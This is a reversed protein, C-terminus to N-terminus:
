ESLDSTSQGPSYRLTSLFTSLSDAVAQPQELMVMHGAAPILDIKARPLQDALYQSYRVPTLTDEQGCIVQAPFRIKHVSEMVDFANCALFDGHLVAPRIASMRQASLEILRSDSKPSFAREMIASIAAPFTTPSATNELIEPAVRLRAGTGILGLALVHEPYRLALTLAIAGGMSHGVFVARFIHISEMWQIIGQCYSEIKQHGRGGSQGHGPLDIAYVRYGTLRRVQAPWHLHTGGAGHILVVPPSEGSGEPSCRYYIDADFPM